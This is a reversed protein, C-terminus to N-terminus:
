LAPLVNRLYPRPQHGRAIMCQGYVQNFARNRAYRTTDVLRIDYNVTDDAHTQCAQADAQFAEFGGAGVEFGDAAPRTISDCGVLAFALPLLFLARM